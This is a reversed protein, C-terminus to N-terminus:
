GSAPAAGPKNEAVGPVVGAPPVPTHPLLLTLRDPLIRIDVPLFGGPDGDMQFPVDGVDSEIRLSRARKTTCDEWTQHQGMMVGSLYRLGNWISGEKFTCLDLLGDNGDADPLIRLGGAYRPLNGVFVWRASIPVATTPPSQEHTAAGLDRTVTVEDSSSEPIQSAAHDAVEQDCYVRLEPYQYNWISDLIPRAYSLHHIHGTRENHLRRVVDADFGCGVMLLFLRGNAEGADLTRTKGHSVADLLQAVNATMGLYKALLNETGLPFVAIPTGPPTRNAILAVTGDGGASIVAQLTGAALAASAECALEDIHSIAAVRFGRSLLGDRLADVLAQGCRAGAKPNLSILVQQQPSEM